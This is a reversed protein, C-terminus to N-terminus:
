ITVNLYLNHIVKKYQCSKYRKYIPSLAFHLFCNTNDIISSHNKIFESISKDPEYNITITNDNILFIKIRM